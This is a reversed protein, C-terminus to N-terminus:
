LDEGAVAGVQNIFQEWVINKVVEGLNDPNGIKARDDKLFDLAKLEDELNNEISKELKDFDFSELEYSDLNSVNNQYANKSVM